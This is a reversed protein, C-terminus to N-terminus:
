AEFETKDEEEREVPKLESALKFATEPREITVTKSRMTRDSNTPSTMPTLKKYPRKILNESLATVLGGGEKSEETEEDNEKPLGSLAKIVNSLRRHSEEEKGNTEQAIAKKLNEIRNEM